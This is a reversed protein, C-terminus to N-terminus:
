LNAAGGGTPLGVRAMFESLRPQWISEGARSGFLSHADNGFSGFAVLETQPNGARYREFMPRWTSPGFYSDNDGYFWLSPIRTKEGYEAAARAATYIPKLATALVKRDKWSAYDLSNRMLHVICTQLTTAPFVAALAEPIGKLGDTVAILIDAM